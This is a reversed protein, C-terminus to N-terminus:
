SVSLKSSTASSDPQPPAEAKEPSEPLEDEPEEELEEELEEDADEDLEEDPDKELLELELPASARASKRYSTEPRLLPADTV